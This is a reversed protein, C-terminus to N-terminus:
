ERFIVHNSRMDVDTLFNLLSEKYTLVLKM